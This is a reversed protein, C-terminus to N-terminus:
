WELYPKGNTGILPSSSHVRAIDDSGEAPARYDWDDKGTFPDLPIKYLYQPKDTLVSLSAPYKKQDAYYQDLTSNITYLNELLVSERAKILGWKFNPAAIAALIGVISMVIMLEILTFGKINIRHLMKM